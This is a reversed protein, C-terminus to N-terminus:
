LGLGHLASAGTWGFDVAPLNIGTNKALAKTAPTVITVLQNIAMSMGIFGVGLYLGSLVAKSVKMGFFLGLIMILISIVVSPGPSLIAQVISNWNM